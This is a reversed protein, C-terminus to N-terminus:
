SAEEGLYAEIVKPNSRVSAPTGEAIKEGHELVSVTECTEMVLKLIHEIIVVTRGFRDRLALVTDMLIDVNTPSLGAGPGGHLFVVPKGKPNGSVEWYMHHLGDLALMGADYPEIDPYLETRLAPAHDAM